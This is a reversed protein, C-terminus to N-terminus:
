RRLVLVLLMAVAAAVVVKVGGVMAGPRVRMPQIPTPADEQEHM